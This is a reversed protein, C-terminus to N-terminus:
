YIDPSQFIFIALKEPQGSCPQGKKIQMPLRSPASMLSRFPWEQKCCGWHVARDLRGALAPESREVKVVPRYVCQM